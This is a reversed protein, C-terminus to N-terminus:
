PMLLQVEPLSLALIHFTVPTDAVTSTTDPKDDVLSPTQQNAESSANTNLSYNMAQELQQKFEAQQIQEETQQPTDVVSTGTDQM